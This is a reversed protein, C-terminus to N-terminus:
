AGSELEDENDKSIVMQPRHPNKKIKIMGEPNSVVIFQRKNSIYKQEQSNADKVDDKLIQSKQQM